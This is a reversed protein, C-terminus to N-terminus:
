GFLEVGGIFPLKKAKGQATTVLMYIAAILLLIQVLWLLVFIFPGIFPVKRMFSFVGQIALVIVQIIFLILGQSAHFRAFPSKNATLMPVLFLLPIYSLLAVGRNDEKDKNTFGGSKDTVAVLDKFKDLRESKNVKIEQNNGETNVVPLTNDKGCNSCIVSDEPLKSGCFRCFM